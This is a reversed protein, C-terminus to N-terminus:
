SCRKGDMAAGQFRKDIMLRYIWYQHDDQNWVTCSSVSRGTRAYLALPICEPQAYAQALSYMNGAVFGQQEESV